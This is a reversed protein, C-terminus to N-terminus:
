GQPSGGAGEEANEVSKEVLKEGGEAMKNGTKMRNSMERNSQMLPRRCPPRLTLLIYIVVDGCRSDLQKTFFSDMNHTIPNTGGGWGAPHEGLVRQV